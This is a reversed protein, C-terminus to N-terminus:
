DVNKKVGKVGARLRKDLFQKKTRISRRLLVAFGLIHFKEGGKGTRRNTGVALDNERDQFVGSV